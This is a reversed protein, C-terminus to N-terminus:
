MSDLWRVPVREVVDVAPRARAKANLAAVDAALPAAVRVVFGHGAPFVRLARAVDAAVAADSALAGGTAIAVEM